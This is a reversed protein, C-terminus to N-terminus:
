PLEEDFRTTANKDPGFKGEFNKQFIQLAFTADPAEVTDRYIINYEPSYTYGKFKPM